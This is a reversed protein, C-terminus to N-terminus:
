AVWDQVPKEGHELGVDSYQGVIVRAQNSLSESDKKWYDSHGETDVKYRNAGFDERHPSQGHNGEVTGSLLPSVWKLWGFGGDGSFDSVPDGKASGAWVHKDDECGNINLDSARDTHMGPSGAVVIDDVALGNGQLAAEAVVTSGYSHGVATVHHPGGEHTARLGDVFRDLAQGGQKSRESKVVSTDTEPADYGLWMVTAVDDAAATMGDASAHLNKVRDMNSATDGLDTELGPVWVATHKAREPNGVSIVARGDGASDIQLLYGKPGLENLQKETDDLAKQKAKIADLDAQANVLAENQSEPFVAPNDEIQKIHNEADTVQRALDAQQRDLVIRNAKDRDAASVGDMGGIRQPENQVYSARQQDSLSRWWLNIDAPTSSATPCSPGELERPGHKNFDVGDSPAYTPQRAPAPATPADAQADIRSPARFRVGGDDIFM